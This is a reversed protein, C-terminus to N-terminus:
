GSVGEIKIGMPAMIATFNTGNWKGLGAARGNHDVPWGPMTGDGSRYRRCPHKQHVLGLRAAADHSRPIIESQRGPNRALHGSQDKDRHHAGSISSCLSTRDRGHVDAPTGPSFGCCHPETKEKFLAVPGEPLENMDFLQSQRTCFFEHGHRVNGSPM